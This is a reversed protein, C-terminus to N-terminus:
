PKEGTKEKPKTCVIRGTVSIGEPIVLDFGEGNKHPWVAGIERWYGKKGEEKSDTVVYAVHTPKAMDTEKSTNINQHKQTNIVPQALARIIVAL